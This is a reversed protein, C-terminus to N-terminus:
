SIEFFIKNDNKKMECEGFRSKKICHMHINLLSNLSDVRKNELILKMVDYNNTDVTIHLATM